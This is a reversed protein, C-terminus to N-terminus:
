SATTSITPSSCGAMRTSLSGARSISATSPADGPRAQRRRPDRVEDWAAGNKRYGKVTHRLTDAVFLTGSQPDFAVAEPGSLDGGGGIVADAAVCSTLADFNPWTLVRRGGFDTVFIRGRPDIAIGSPGFMEFGGDNLFNFRANVGPCRSALTTGSLGTQGLVRYAPAATANIASAGVLAVFVVSLLSLRQRSQFMPAGYDSQARANTGTNLRAKVSEATDIRM